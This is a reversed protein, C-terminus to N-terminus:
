YCVLLQYYPYSSWLHKESEKFFILILSKKM